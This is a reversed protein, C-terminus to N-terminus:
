NKNKALEASAISEEIMMEQKMRKMLPTKEFCERCFMNPKKISPMLATAYKKKCVQCLNQKM